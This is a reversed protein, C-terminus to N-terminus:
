RGELNPAMEDLLVGNGFIQHSKYGEKDLTAKFVMRVRWNFLKDNKSSDYRSHHTLACFVISWIQCNLSQDLTLCIMESQDNILTELRDFADHFSSLNTPLIVKKLFMIKCWKGVSKVHLGDPRCVRPMRLRAWLIAFNPKDPLCHRCIM